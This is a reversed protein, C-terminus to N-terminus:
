SNNDIYWADDLNLHNSVATSHVWAYKLYTSKVQCKEMKHVGCNPSLYEEKLEVVNIQCSYNSTGKCIWIHYYLM